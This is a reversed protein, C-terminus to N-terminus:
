CGSSSISSLFQTSESYGRERAEGTKQEETKTWYLVRFRFLAFFLSPRPVGIVHIVDPPIILDRKHCSPNFISQQCHVHFLHKTSSYELHPAHDHSLIQVRQTTEHGATWAGRRLVDPPKIQIIALFAVIEAQQKILQTAKGELLWCRKTVMSVDTVLSLLPLSGWKQRWSQGFCNAVDKLWVFECVGQAQKSTPQNYGLRLLVTHQYM